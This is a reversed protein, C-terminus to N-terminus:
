WDPGNRGGERRRDVQLSEKKQQQASERHLSSERYKPGNLRQIKGTAPHIMASKEPARGGGGPTTSIQAVRSCHGRHRTVAYRRAKTGSEEHLRDAPEHQAAVTGIDGPSCRRLM